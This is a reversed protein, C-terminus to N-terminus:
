NRASGVLVLVRLFNVEFYKSKNQKGRHRKYEYDVFDFDEANLLKVFAFKPFIKHVRIKM